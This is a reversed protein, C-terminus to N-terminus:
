SWSPRRPLVVLVNLGAFAHAGFQSAADTDSANFNIFNAGVGVFPVTRDINASTHVLISAHDNEQLPLRTISWAARCLALLPARCRRGQL